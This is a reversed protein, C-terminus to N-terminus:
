KFTCILTGLFSIISTLYVVKVPENYSKIIEKMESIDQKLSDLKHINEYCKSKPNINYCRKIVFRSFM